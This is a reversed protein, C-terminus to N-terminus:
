AVSRRFVGLVRAGPAQIHRHRRGCGSSCYKGPQRGRVPRHRLAWLHGARESLFTLSEM